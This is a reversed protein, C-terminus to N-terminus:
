ETRLAEAPMRRRGVLQGPWLALTNVTVLTAPILIAIALLALPPVNALPVRESVLRWGTRGIALGLPVGFLLGFLGIATAQSNLVLRTARRSLGMARLVAFDRRRRRVSTVLVHSLAAVALLALFAALVVPLTRINRLNSLEVPVDSPSVDQVQQGLVQQLHGIAKARDAGGSFRVAVGRQIHADTNPIYPPVVADFQQPALWLGEDFESHVDNPFLAKGVIRVPRRSDGVTVTSGVRVHLADATAPGIAAEGLERPARGSTITLQIPTEAVGAPPRLSFAPVGIGSVGIVSRDVVAAATGEGAAAAIDAVLKGDVNTATFQPPNPTVLADFTVGARDPHALADRIGHNISMTGVIGLVGVVAGALAPRVPVASRGRGREFAMGTGLGVTLPARQRIWAALPSPRTTAASQKRDSRRAVVATMIVVAAMTLAVGPGLVAWDFHTGVDPELQRGLGVPFRSSALTATTLTAVGAVVTTVLHSLVGAASVDGHTMGIARLVRADDGIVSASRGLAQGVLLGGALAVSAALLLLATREVAVTTDVRRSVTHLDLVPVGPAMLSSVDRKLAAIDSPGHQLRVNANPHATIQNRYRALFGPSVLAQGQYVFLHEPVERVVGVVHMTIKLGHPLDGTSNVLPQDAGYAQFEITSGLPADKVLHEDVVLEDAAKPDFMRGKVVIPKDVAGLYTGDDSGFLLGGPQNNINGFLLDWVALKAVEPRAALRSWDPDTVGVQSPFVVADAAHTRIRLRALATDTRRAGALAALALGATIGALLGLVVLSRWRRAMDARAWM